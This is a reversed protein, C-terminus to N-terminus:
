IFTRSLAQNMEKHRLCRWTAPPTERDIKINTCDSRPPMLLTMRWFQTSITNYEVWSWVALSSKYASHECKSSFSSNM